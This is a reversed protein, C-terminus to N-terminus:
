SRRPRGKFIRPLSKVKVLLFKLKKATQHSQLFDDPRVLLRMLDGLHDAELALLFLHILSTPLISGYSQSFSQSQLSPRTSQRPDECNIQLDKLREFYPTLVKNQIHLDGFCSSLNYKSLLKM